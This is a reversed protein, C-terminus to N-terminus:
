RTKVYKIYNPIMFIIKYLFLSLIEFYVRNQDFFRRNQGNKVPKRLSQLGMVGDIKQSDENTFVNNAGVNRSSEM